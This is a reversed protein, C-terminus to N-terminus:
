WPSYKQRYYEERLQKESKTFDIRLQDWDGARVYFMKSSYALEDPLFVAQYSEGTHVDIRFQNRFINEHQVPFFEHDGPGRDQFGPKRCHIAFEGTSKWLFAAKDYARSLDRLRIKYLTRCALIPRMLQQELNYTDVPTWPGVSQDWFGRAVVVGDGSAAAPLEEAGLLMGLTANSPLLDNSLLHSHAIYEKEHRYRDTEASAFFEFSCFACSYNAHMLFDPMRWGCHRCTLIKYESLIKSINPEVIQHVLNWMLSDGTSDGTWGHELKDWSEIMSDIFGPRLPLRNLFDRLGMGKDLVRMGLEAECNRIKMIFVAVVKETNVGSDEWSLGFSGKSIEFNKEVERHLAGYFFYPSFDLICGPVRRHVMEMLEETNSIRLLHNKRLTLRKLHPVASLVLDVHGPTLMPQCSIDLTEISSGVNHIAELGRLMHLTSNQYTLRPSRNYTESTAQFPIATIMIHRAETRTGVEHEIETSGKTYLLIPKSPPMMKDRVLWDRAVGQPNKTELVQTEGLGRSEFAKEMILSVRSSKVVVPKQGNNMTGIQLLRCDNGLFDARNTDWVEYFHGVERYTGKSALALNKKDIFSIDKLVRSRLESIGLVQFLPKSPQEAMNGTFLNGGNNVHFPLAQVREEGSVEEGNAAKKSYRFFLSDYNEAEALRMMVKPDQPKLAEVSEFDPTEQNEELGCLEFMKDRNENWKSSEDQALTIAAGPALQRDREIMLRVQESISSCSAPNSGFGSM